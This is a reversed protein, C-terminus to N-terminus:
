VLKNDLQSQLLQCRHEAIFLRKQLDLITEADKRHMDEYMQVLITNEEEQPSPEVVPAEKKIMCGEGYLLWDIDLDPCRDKIVIIKEPGIGKRISNVFGNAFGCAREFARVSMHKRGIYEKLRDKTTEM